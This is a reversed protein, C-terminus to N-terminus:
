LFASEEEEGQVLEYDVPKAEGDPGLEFIDPANKMWDDEEVPPPITLRVGEGEWDVTLGFLDALVKVFNMRSRSSKLINDLRDATRHAALCVNGELPETIDRHLLEGSLGHFEAHEQVLRDATSRSIRREKLWASWGGRRGLRCLKHKMVFLLEGLVADRKLVENKHFHMDRRHSERDIWKTVIEYVLTSDDEYSWPSRLSAINDRFSDATKISM